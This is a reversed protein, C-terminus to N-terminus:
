VRSSQTIGQASLFKRLAAALACAAQGTQKAFRLLGPIRGPHLLVHAVLKPLNTKGDSTTFQNFDLPLDESAIDSVVRLTVCPLKRQRCLEHIVASEMEVAECKTARHAAAKEAATVLVREACHFRVPRAGAEQLPGHLHVPADANFLLTHLPVEASLAGAFGCTLVLEPDFCEFAARAARRAAAQGMGTVIVEVGTPAHFPRAEEPVAFFILAKCPKKL